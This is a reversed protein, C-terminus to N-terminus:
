SAVAQQANKRMFEVLYLAWKSGYDTHGSACAEFREVDAISPASWGNAMAQETAASHVTARELEIWTLGPRSKRKAAENQFADYIAQAPGGHPRFPDHM